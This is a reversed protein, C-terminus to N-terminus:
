GLSAFNTLLLLYQKYMDQSFTMYVKKRRQKYFLEGDRVVFRQAKKRVICRANGAPINEPYTGESLYQYVAQVLNPSGGSEDVDM